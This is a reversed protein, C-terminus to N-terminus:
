NDPARGGRAATRCTVEHNGWCCCRVVRLKMADKELPDKSDLKEYDERYGDACWEHLNGHMDFLGFANSPYSGVTTARLLKAFFNAQKITIKDGFYYKTQTGARCTYEWEAETPLRMGKEKTNECFQCAEKWSVTEVPFKSTDTDRVRETEKNDKQFYSPNNGTVAQYQQQTTKYIAIYFAKTLEVDHQVEHDSADKDTPASGMKFKGPPILVLELKVGNGLDVSKAEPNESIEGM